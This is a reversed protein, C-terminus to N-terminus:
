RGHILSKARQSFVIINTRGLNVQMEWWDWLATHLSAQDEAMIVIDHVFILLKM